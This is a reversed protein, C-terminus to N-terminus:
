EFESKVGFANALAIAAEPHLTFARIWDFAVRELRRTLGSTQAIRVVDRKFEDSHIAAM